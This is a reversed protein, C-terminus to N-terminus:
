VPRAILSQRQQEEVGELLHINMDMDRNDCSDIPGPLGVNVVEEVLVTAQIDVISDIDEGEEEDAAALKRVEEAVEIEGLRGGGACDEHDVVVINNTDEVAVPEPEGQFVSAVVAAARINTDVAEATRMQFDIVPDRELVVLVIAVDIAAM